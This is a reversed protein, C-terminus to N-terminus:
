SGVLWLGINLLVHYLVSGITICMLFGRGVFGCFSLLFKGEWSGGFFCRIFESGITIGMLFGGERLGAFFGM